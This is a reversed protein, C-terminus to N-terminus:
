FFLGESRLSYHRGPKGVIIHDFFEIELLEFIKNLKNTTDIDELSPFTGGAPHNHCLIIGTANNAFIRKLIERFSINASDISGEALIEFKVVEQKANLLLCAVCERSTENSLCGELYRVVKRPDELQLKSSSNFYASANERLTNVMKDLKFKNYTKTM